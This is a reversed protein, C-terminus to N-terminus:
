RAATTLMRPGDSPEGASGAVTAFGTSCTVLTGKTQKVLEEAIALTWRVRPPASIFLRSLVVLDNSKLNAREVTAMASTRTNVPTLLTAATSRLGPSIRTVSMPDRAIIRTSGAVPSCFTTEEPPLRVKGVPIATSALPCITTTSPTCPTRRTSGVVPAWVTREDPPNKTKGKPMAISALPLMRTASSSAKPPGPAIMRTSGTVPSCACGGTEDPPNKAAGLPMAISALPLTTTASWTLATDGKLPSPPIM